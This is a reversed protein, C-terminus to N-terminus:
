RREAHLSLLPRWHSIWSTDWQPSQPPWAEPDDFMNAYPGHPAVGEPGRGSWARQVADAEDASEYFSVNGYHYATANPPEAQRGEVMTLTRVRNPVDAVATEDSRFHFESWVVILAPTIRSRDRAGSSRPAMRARVDDLSAFNGEWIALFRADYSGVAQYRHLAVFSGGAFAEPGHVEAYWRSLAEDGGPGANSFVLFVSAPREGYM